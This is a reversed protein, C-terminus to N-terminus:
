HRRRPIQRGRQHHGSVGSGCVSDEEEETGGHQDVSVSQTYEPQSGCVFVAAIQVKVCLSRM